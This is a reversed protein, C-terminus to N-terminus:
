KTVAASLVLEMFMADPVPNNYYPAIEKFGLERYLAIAKDMRGPLTDLRMREYGIKTANRIINGALERGLGKGRFAARVFLRKMECIGDAMKRLAICGAIQDGDVALLLRGRPPAYDGPLGALEVDFNQFCLDIELWAAYEKFLQRAEEIQDPTHAPVIEIV